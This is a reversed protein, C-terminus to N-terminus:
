ITNKNHKKINNKDDANNIQKTYDDSMKCKKTIHCSRFKYRRKFNDWNM